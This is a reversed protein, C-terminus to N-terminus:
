AQFCWIVCQLYCRRSIGREGIYLIFYRPVYELSLAIVAFLAQAERRPFHNQEGAFLANHAGTAKTQQYYPNPPFERHAQQSNFADHDTTVATCPGHFESDDGIVSEM